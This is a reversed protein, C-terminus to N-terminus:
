FFTIFLEIIPLFVVKEQIFHGCNAIWVIVVVLFAEVFCIVAEFIWRASLYSSMHLGTRHERKIIERERCIMRISNFIGIWICACVLAFASSRTANYSVFTEEGTVMCILISILGASIFNKWGKENIYSHFCKKIYIKIQQGRSARGDRM